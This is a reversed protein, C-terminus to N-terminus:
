ALRLAYKRGVDSSEKTVIALNCCLKDLNAPLQGLCHDVDFALPGKSLLEEVAEQRFTLTGIDVLPQLINARLLRCPLNFPIARSFPYICYPPCSQINIPQAKLFRDKLPPWM